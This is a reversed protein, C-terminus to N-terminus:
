KAARRWVFPEEKVRGSMVVEISEEEVVEVVEVVVEQKRDAAVDSVAVVAPERPEPVRQSRDAAPVPWPSVRERWPM